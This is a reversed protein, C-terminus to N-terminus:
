SQPHSRAPLPHYRHYIYGLPQLTQSCIGFIRWCDQIRNWCGRVCHFRLPPLHLLTSYVVYCFSDLFIGRNFSPNTQALTLNRHKQQTSQVTPSFSRSNNLDCFQRQSTWRDKKRREPQTTYGQVRGAPCRRWLCKFLCQDFATKCDPLPSLPTPPPTPYSVVNWNLLKLKRKFYFIYIFDRYLKSM